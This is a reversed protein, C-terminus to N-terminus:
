LSPQPLVLFFDTIPYDGKYEANLCMDGEKEKPNKHDVRPGQVQCTWAKSCLTQLSVHMCHVPCSHTQLISTHLFAPGANNSSLGLCSLRCHERSQQSSGQLRTQFCGCETLLQLGKEPSAPATGLAPLAGSHNIELGGCKLNWGRQQCVPAEVVM